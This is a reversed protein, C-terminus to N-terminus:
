QDKAQEFAPFNLTELQKPCQFYSCLEIHNVKLLWRAISATM